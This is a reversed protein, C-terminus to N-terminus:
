RRYRSQARPSRSRARPSRSRDRSRRGHVIALALQLVTGPAIFVAFGTLLLKKTTEVSEWYWCESRYEEGLFLLHRASRAGSQVAERNRWLLGLYM